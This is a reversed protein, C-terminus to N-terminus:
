RNLEIIAFSNKNYRYNITRIVYKGKKLSSLDIINCSLSIPITMLPIANGFILYDRNLLESYKYIKMECTRNTRYYYMTDSQLTFSKMNQYDETLDKCSINYGFSYIKYSENINKFNEHIIKISDKHHGAKILYRFKLKHLSDEKITEIKIIRDSSVKCNIISDKKLKNPLILFTSKILGYKEVFNVSQFNFTEKQNYKYYDYDDIYNLNFEKIYKNSIYGDEWYEYIIINGNKSYEKWLGDKVSKLLVSDSEDFDIMFLEESDKIPVIKYKGKSKINGNNHYYSWYGIKLGNEDVQNNTDNQSVANFSFFITLFLIFIIKDM